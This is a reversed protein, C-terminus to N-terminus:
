REGFIQERAVADREGDVAEGRGRQRRAGTEIMCGM